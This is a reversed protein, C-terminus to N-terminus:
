ARHIEMRSKTDEKQETYRWETDGKQETYRRDARHIEKRSQTEGNQEKQETYTREASYLEGGVRGWM